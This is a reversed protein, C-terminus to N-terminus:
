TRIRREKIYQTHYRLAKDRLKDAMLTNVLATISKEDEASAFWTTLTALLTHWQLYSTGLTNLSHELSHTDLCLMAKQDADYDKLRLRSGIPSTIRWMNEFRLTIRPLITCPRDNIIVMPPFEVDTPAFCLRNHLESNLVQNNKCCAVLRNLMVLNHYQHADLILPFVHLSKSTFNNVWKTSAVCQSPYISNFPVSLLLSCTEQVHHVFKRGAVSVRLAWNTKALLTNPPIPHNRRLTVLNTHWSVWSCAPACFFNSYLPVLLFRYTDLLPKSSLVEQWFQETFACHKKTTFAKILHQFLDLFYYRTTSCVYYLPLLSSADFSCCVLDRQAFIVNELLHLLPTPIETTARKTAM